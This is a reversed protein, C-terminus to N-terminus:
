GARYHEWAGEAQALRDLVVAITGPHWAMGLHSASVEVNESKPGVEQLCAQWPVIGDTRSYVATSPMPLPAASRGDLFDGHYPRLTQYLHGVSTLGSEEQSLQLPSGLTIVNRVRDPFRRALERAFLGGLSWGVLSVSRGTEEHHRGLRSVAGDALWRIPGLNHGLNWARVRYGAARLADRLVFTFTDDTLFGPIVLVGHGDGRPAEALAPGATLLSIGDVWARWPESWALAKSPRKFQPSKAGTQCASM